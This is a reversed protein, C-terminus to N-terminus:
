PLSVSLGLHVRPQVRWPADLTRVDSGTSGTSAIDSDESINYLYIVNNIYFDASFRAFLSLHDSIRFAMPVSAFLGFLPDLFDRPEDAPDDLRRTEEAVADVFLGFGIGPRWRHRDGGPFVDAGLSVPHRRIRIGAWPTDINAPAFVTYGARLVVRQSLSVGAGLDLGHMVPVEASRFALAYGIGAEVRWATSGPSRADPPAEPSAPPAPPAEPAPGAAAVSIGIRGGELLLAIAARCILAMTEFRAARDDAVIERTLVRGDAPDVLHLLTRGDPLDSWSVAAVCNAPGCAARADDLLTMAGSTAGARGPTREEVRVPLDSAHIGIARALEGASASQSPELLVLVLRDDGSVAGPRACWALGALLAAM